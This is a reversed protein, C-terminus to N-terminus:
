VEGAGVGPRDEGDRADHAPAPTDLPLKMGWLASALVGRVHRESGSKWSQGNHLKYYTLSM